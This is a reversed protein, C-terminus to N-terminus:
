EAGMQSNIQAKAEDEKMSPNGRLLEQVQWAQDAEEESPVRFTNDTAETKFLTSSLVGVVKSFADVALANKIAAKAHNDTYQSFERILGPLQEVASTKACLAKISQNVESLLLYWKHGAWALAILLLLM